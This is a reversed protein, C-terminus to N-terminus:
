HRHDARAAQQSVGRDYYTNSGEREWRGFVVRIGGLLLIPVFFAVGAFVEDIEVGIWEELHFWTLLNLVLIGVGMGFWALLVLNLVDLVKRARWGFRKFTRQVDQLLQERRREKKFQKDGVM